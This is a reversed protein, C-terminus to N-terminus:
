PQLVPRPEREGRIIVALGCAILAGGCWAALSLQEGLLAVGCLIGVVPQLFVFGAVTSAPLASLGRVWLVTSAFSVFLGLAVTWGLAPVLNPGASWQGRELWAAPALLLMAFLMSILVIETSSHRETLPKALPSYLGWLVAHGALVLNGLAHEGGLLDGPVAGELVLSLAGALGLAVGLLQARRLVEGLMLWSLVLVAAPEILVLISANSATSLQVGLIGLYLPAGFAAIGLLALRGLEGATYRSRFGGRRMLFLAMAVIAVANRLFTVTAPPLGELALKQGLYSAGGLVNALAVARFASNKTLSSM